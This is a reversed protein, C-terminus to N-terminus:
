SAIRREPATKLIEDGSARDMAFNDKGGLTLYSAPSTGATCTRKWRGGGSGATRTEEYRARWHGHRTHLLRSDM